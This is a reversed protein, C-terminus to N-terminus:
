KFVTFAISPCSALLFHDSKCNWYKWLCIPCSQYGIAESVPDCIESIAKQAGPPLPAQGTPTVNGSSVNVSEDIHPAEESQGGMQGHYVRPDNDDPVIPIGTNTYGQAEGSKPITFFSTDSLGLNARTASTVFPPTPAMSVPMTQSATPQPPQIEATEGFIFYPTSTLPTVSMPVSATANEM